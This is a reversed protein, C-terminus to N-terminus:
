TTGPPLATSRKRNGPQRMRGSLVYNDLSLRDILRRYHGAITTTKGCVFGLWLWRAISTYCRKIDYKASLYDVTEPMTLYRKLELPTPDPEPETQQKPELFTFGHYRMYYHYISLLSGAKTLVWPVPAWDEDQDLPRYRQADRDLCLVAGDELISAPWLRTERALIIRQEITLSRTETTIKPM